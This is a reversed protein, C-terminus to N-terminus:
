CTAELQAKVENVFIQLKEAM